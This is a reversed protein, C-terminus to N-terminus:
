FLPREEEIRKDWVYTYGPFDLELVFSVNLRIRTQTREIVINEPTVPLDLKEAKALLNQTMRKNTWQVTNGKDAMLAVEKEFEGVNIMIPGVKIGIMVVLGLVVMGVLCGVPVDGRQARWRSM